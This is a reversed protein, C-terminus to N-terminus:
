STTCFIQNAEHAVRHPSIILCYLPTFQKLVLYNTSIFLLACLRSQFRCLEVHYIGPELAVFLSLWALEHVLITPACMISYTGQWISWIGGSRSWRRTSLLSATCLSSVTRVSPRAWRARHPLIIQANHPAQPASLTLVSTSRKARRSLSAGHVVALTSPWHYSWCLTADMSSGTIQCLILVQWFLMSILVFKNHPM